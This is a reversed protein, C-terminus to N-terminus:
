SAVDHGEMEQAVGLLATARRAIEEAGGRDVLSCGAEYGGQDFAEATPLYGLYGNAPAVFRVTREGAAERLQADAASFLEGPVACFALEPGFEFAQLTLPVSELREIVDQSRGASQAGERATHLQRATGHDTEAASALQEVRREIRELWRRERPPLELTTERAELRVEAFPTAEGVLEAVAEGLLRGMREVEDHGQGQRTYRTSVDGLAGNLFLAVADGGMGAEVVGSAHGAYDGSLALEDEGLITPHCNFHFLVALVDGAEDRAVVTVCSDDAPRSPDIRNSAIGSVAGEAWSLTGPVLRDFAETLGALTLELLEAAVDPQYTGCGDGMMAGLAEGVPGEFPFLGGQACHTHTAGVLVHAAPVGTAEAARRRLEATWGVDVAMVDLSIVAYRDSGSEIALCRAFLDDHVSSAGASRARYGAM